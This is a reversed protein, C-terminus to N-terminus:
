KGGTLHLTYGFNTTHNIQLSGDILTSYIFAFEGPYELLLIHSPLELMRSDIKAVGYFVNGFYSGYIIDKPPYILKGGESVRGSKYIIVYSM